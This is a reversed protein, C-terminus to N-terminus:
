PATDGFNNPVAADLKVNGHFLLYSSIVAISNIMNTMVSNEQHNREAHFVGKANTQIV